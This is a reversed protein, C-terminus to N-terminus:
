PGTWAQLPFAKGKCHCYNRSNRSNKTDLTVGHLVRFATPPCDSREVVSHHACCGHKLKSTTVDSSKVQSCTVHSTFHRGWDWPRRSPVSPKYRAWRADLDLPCRVRNSAEIRIGSVSVLTKTSKEIEEHLNKPLVECYTEFVGKWITKLKSNVSWGIIRRQINQILTLTALYVLCLSISFCQM